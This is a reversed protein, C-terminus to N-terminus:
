AVGLLSPPDTSANAILPAHVGPLDCTALWPALTRRISSFFYYEDYCLVSRRRPPMHDPEMRGPLFGGGCIDGFQCDRCEAPLHEGLDLLYRFVPDAALADLPDDQVRFRTRVGGDALARFYDHYEICGDTNVVFIPVTDNVINEIHRPSGMLTYICDYFLRIYLTPDDRHWWQEFLQAFWMGYRPNSRYRAEQGTGWPLSAHNLEMPWLVDLRRVPLSDAWELYAAPEIDPNAVSLFGQLLSAYQGEVISDVTRMVRDYSGAGGKTVRARDNHERPGDVSVGLTVRHEALLGLLRQPLKVANTQLSITLEVDSRRIEEARALFVSFDELPWLSPEGGHLTVHFESLEHAVAHERIRELCALAVGIPMNRHVREFTRDGLNFMYCYSCDLNCFATLKLIALRFVRKTPRGLHDSARRAPRGAAV